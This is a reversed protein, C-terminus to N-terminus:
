KLGDLIKQQREVYVEKGILEQEYLHKLARLQDEVTLTSKVASAPALDPVPETKAPTIVPAPQPEVPKPLSVSMLTAKLVGGSELVDANAVKPPVGFVHEADMTDLSDILEMRYEAGKETTFSFTFKGPSYASDVKITTLGPEVLVNSTEGKGVEGAQRGNVEVRAKLLSMTGSSRVFVLKAKQGIEASPADAAFAFLPLWLIIAFTIKKFLNFM